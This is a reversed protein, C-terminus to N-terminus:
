VQPLPSHILYNPKDLGLQCSTIFWGLGKSPFNIGQAPHSFAIFAIWLLRIEEIGLLGGAQEMPTEQYTVIMEKPDSLEIDVNAIRSGYVIIYDPYRGQPDLRRDHPPGNPVVFFLYGPGFLMAILPM